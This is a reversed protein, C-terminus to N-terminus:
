PHVDFPATIKPLSSDEHLSRPEEHVAAVDQIGPGRGSSAQEVATKATSLLPPLVLFFFRASTVPPAPKTPLWRHSRSRFSPYSTTQTSLRHVPLRSFM